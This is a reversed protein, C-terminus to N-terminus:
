ACSNSTPTLWGIRARIVGPVLDRSRCGPTSQTIFASTQDHDTVDVCALLMRTPAPLWYEVCCSLRHCTVGVGCWRHKILCWFFTIVCQVSSWLHQSLLHTVGKSLSLFSPLATGAEPHNLLSQFPSSSFCCSLFSSSQGPP